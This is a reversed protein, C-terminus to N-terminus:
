VRKHKGAKAPDPSPEMRVETESWSNILTSMEDTFNKKQTGKSNSIFYCNLVTVVNRRFLLRFSM